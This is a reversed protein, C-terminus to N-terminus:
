RVQRPKGIKIRPQCTHDDDPFLEGCQCIFTIITVDDSTKEDAM